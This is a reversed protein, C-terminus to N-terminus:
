RGSAGATYISMKAVATVVQPTREKNTSPGRKPIANEGSDDSRKGSEAERAPSFGSVIQPHKVPLKEQPHEVHGLVASPGHPTSAKSIM